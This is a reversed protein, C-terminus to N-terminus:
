GRDTLGVLEEITHLFSLKKLRGSPDQAELHLWDLPVANDTWRKLNSAFTKFWKQHQQTLALFEEVAGTSFDGLQSAVYWIGYLDKLAKSPSQRKPFTLGKHFMWTEPAVVLGKCGSRTAFQVTKRLSLELYGLPQATVGAVRINKHKDGRATASTLFEVEVEHGYVEKIYVETAPLDYDRFVQFFGAQRLHEGITVQSVKRIKRHILSDIDRTGVPINDLEQDTLYLRYIILAYGGGIIVHDHWPGLARLFESVIKDENELVM